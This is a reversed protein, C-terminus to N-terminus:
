ATASQRRLSAGLAELLERTGHERAQVTDHGDLFAGHETVTLRTGAGAPALEICTRELTFSAHTVSRTAAHAADHTAAHAATTM